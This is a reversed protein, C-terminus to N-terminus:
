CRGMTVVHAWGFDVLAKTGFSTLLQSLILGRKGVLSHV